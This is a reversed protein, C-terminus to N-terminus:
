ISQSVYGDFWKQKFMANVSPDMLKKYLDIKTDVFGRLEFDVVKDFKYRINELTNNANMVDRLEENEELKIKIREIDVKDDDTLNLGYTENLANIIILYFTKIKKRMNHDEM